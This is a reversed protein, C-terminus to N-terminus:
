YLGDLLRSKDCGNWGELSIEHQQGEGKGGREGCGGEVAGVGDFRRGAGEDVVDAKGTADALLSELERAAGRDAETEVVAEFVEDGHVSLGEEDGSAAHVLVDGFAIRQDGDALGAAHDLLGQELGVGHRDVRHEWAGAGGAEVTHQVVRAAVPVDRVVLAGSGAMGLRDVQVVTAGDDRRVGQRGAVGVGFLDQQVEEGAAELDGTPLGSLVDFAALVETDVGAVALIDGWFPVEGLDVSVPAPGGGVSGHGVLSQGGDVGVDGEAGAEV